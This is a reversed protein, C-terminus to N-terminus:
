NEVSPLFLSILIPVMKALNMAPRWQIKNEDDAREDRGLPYSDGIFLSIFQKIGPHRGQKVSM